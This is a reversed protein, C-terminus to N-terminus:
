MQLFCIPTFIALIFKRIMLEYACFVMPHVFVKLAHQATNKGKFLRHLNRVSKLLHILLLFHFIITCLLITIQSRKSSDDQITIMSFPLPPTLSRGLPYVTPNKRALLRCFGWWGMERLNKPKAGRAAREAPGLYPRILPM